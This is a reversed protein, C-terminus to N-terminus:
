STQTDGVCVEETDGQHGDRGGKGGLITVEGRRMGGIYSLLLLM